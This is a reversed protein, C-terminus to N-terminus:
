SMCKRFKEKQTVEQREGRMKYQQDNKPALRSDQNYNIKRNRDRDYGSGHGREWQHYNAHNVESLPM